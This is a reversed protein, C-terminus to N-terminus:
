KDPRLVSPILRIWSQLNRLSRNGKRSPFLESASHSSFYFYFLHQYSDKYVIFLDIPREVTSSQGQLRMKCIPFSSPAKKHDLHFHITMLNSYKKHLAKIYSKLLNARIVEESCTTVYYSKNQIAILRNPSFLFMSFQTPHSHNGLGCFPNAMSFRLYNHYLCISSLFHSPPKEDYVVLMNLCSTLSKLFNQLNEQAFFRSYWSTYFPLFVQM